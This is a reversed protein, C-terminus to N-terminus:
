TTAWSKSIPSTIKRWFCCAARIPNCRQPHKIMIKNLPFKPTHVNGGHMEALRLVLALGLGTGEYQRNLRADVQMFPTFLREIDETAIGIGTDTVAFHIRGKEADAHVALTVQGKKPTFKVANNLLNVLMQKLRRPDALVSKVNEAPQFDLLVSKKQAQEKVFLMSARCIDNLSIMEPYIDFKGAEIKSLDLIDNILELLHHGSAEINQLAKVQKENMEGYTNLQLAEAFGLIGTLPTRLEHSMNAMFEDKARSAHELETNVRLLDSTRNKVRQELEANFQHIEAEAQQREIFQGIQRGIATFMELLTEDPERMEHNFFTAVGQIENGLQIPFAFGSQLNARQAVSGRPFDPDKTIDVVWLPAGSAWVRGPLGVGIQFERVRTDAEFEAYQNSLTHWIEVCRLRGVSEDVSWLEGWNWGLQKCVTQLIKPTIEALTASEALIRTIEYQTKLRQEAQKRVTIDICLGTMRLAEGHENYVTNGWAGIWRIEASPTVIRYENLLPTHTRIADNIRQEAMQVDDPHLVNRWTDFTAEQKDPDLGFLHFFESTWNLKGTQMDWDWIGAAATHQALSLRENAELLAQEGQKRETIDQAIGTLFTPNGEDDVISEGSKAWIHRISQDPLIIRYEIPENAITAANAPLVIHLDDPHIVKAIVDGLRGTYSNKDIGFIHYMEDSWTIERTKIDWKWSGVRAVAQAARLLEEAQKRETIDTNLGIYQVIKGSTDRQPTALGYVWTVKGTPTMFRYEMGWIGESRVMKGWNSFVTERDEPHLGNIWGKGLAAQSSLGAMEDWRPNTFLCNGEPDTLYIGAPALTNLIRFKPERPIATISPQIAL